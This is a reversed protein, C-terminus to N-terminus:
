EYFASNPKYACVLDATADVIARNFAFIRDGVGASALHAGPLSDADSDLGVCVFKQRDWAHQVLRNFNRPEM